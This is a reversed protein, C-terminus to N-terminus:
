ELSQKFSVIAELLGRKAFDEFYDWQPINSSYDCYSGRILFNGATGLWLDPGADRMVLGGNIDFFFKEWSLFCSSGDMGYTGGGTSVMHYIGHGSLATASGNWGALKGDPTLLAQSPEMCVALMANGSHIATWLETTMAKATFVSRPAADDCQQAAFAYLKIFNSLRKERETFRQMALVRAAAIEPDLEDEDGEYEDGDTEGEPTYPSAADFIRQLVAEAEAYLTDVSELGRYRRLDFRLGSLNHNASQDGISILYSGPGFRQRYLGWENAAMQGWEYSAHGVVANDEKGVITIGSLTIVSAAGAFSIVFEEDDKGVGAPNEFVMGVIADMEQDPTEDHLLELLNLSFDMALFVGKSSSASALSSFKLLLELMREVADRLSMDSTHLGTNAPLATASQAGSTVGSQQAGELPVPAPSNQEAAVMPQSPAPIQISSPTAVIESSSAVITFSLNKWKPSDSKEPEANNAAVGTADVVRGSITTNNINSNHVRQNPDGIQVYFTEACFKATEGDATVVTIELNKIEKTGARAFVHTAGLTAPLGPRVTGSNSAQYDMDDGTEQDDWFLKVESFWESSSLNTFRFQLLTHRGAYPDRLNENFELKFAKLSEAARVIALIKTKIDQHVAFSIRLKKRRDLLFKEHNADPDHLLLEELQSKYLNVSRIEDLPEIAKWDVGCNECFPSDWAPERASNCCLCKNM